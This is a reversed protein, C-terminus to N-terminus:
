NITRDRRPAVVAALESEVVAVVEFELGAVLESEGDKTLNNSWCLM